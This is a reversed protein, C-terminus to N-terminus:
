YNYNKRFVQGTIAKDFVPKTDMGPTTRAALISSKLSSINNFNFKFYGKIETNLQEQIISQEIAWADEKMTNGNVIENSEIYLETARKTAESIVQSSNITLITQGILM